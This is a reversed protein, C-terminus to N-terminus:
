DLRDIRVKSVKAKWIKAPLWAPGGRPKAEQVRQGEFVHVKNTGRERLRIETEGKNAAKLAAQRPQKNHFVMTTDEGNKMLVFYKKESM